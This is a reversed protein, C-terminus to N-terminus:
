GGRLNKLADRLPRRPSPPTQRDDIDQIPSNADPAPSSGKARREQRLRRLEKLLDVAAGIAEDAKGETVAGLVEVAASTGPAEEGLAAAILSMLDASENRMSKWDVVPKDLTGRIPLTIQPVGLQQVSERRALMELPVPFGVQLDLDQNIIGVRGSSSLQLRPDVKPLGIQVGRHDIMGDAATVDIRSGDIFVLEHM